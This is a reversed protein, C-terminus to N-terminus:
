GFGPLQVCDFRNGSVALALFSVPGRLLKGAAWMCGGGAVLDSAATQVASSTRSRSGRQGQRVRARTLGAAEGRVGPPVASCGPEM